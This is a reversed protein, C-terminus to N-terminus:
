SVFKYKRKILIYFLVVELDGRRAWKSPKPIVLREGNSWFGYSLLKRPMTPHIEYFEWIKVLNEFNKFLFLDDDLDLHLDTFMSM